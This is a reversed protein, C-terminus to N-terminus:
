LFVHGMFLFTSLAPISGAVGPNETRHEVLQAVQGIKRGGIVPQMIVPLRHRLAILIIQFRRASLPGRSAINGSPDGRVPGCNAPKRLGCKLRAHRCVGM